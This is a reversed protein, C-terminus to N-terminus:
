KKFQPQFLQFRCRLEEDMLLMAGSNTFEGCYNSATFVTVLRRDAFFQYGNDMVQHARIILDIDVKECFKKVVDAGFCYSVGRDSPGWGKLAEEPDSWLMDCALGQDGIALPREIKSIQSLSNLEPSLGGHMCLAREEIFAAIPLCNFLDAFLKFVKVNFRRKCEDFFGYVRCISETEHNGRLIFMNAPHLVKLSLLLLISEIGHKGRDVYDGLFLFRSQPPLGGTRLVEVLDHIQGHIDGCVNVPAEVPVLMPESMVIERARRVVTSILAENLIGASAKSVDKWNTMVATVFSQIAEDEEGASKGGNSDLQRKQPPM